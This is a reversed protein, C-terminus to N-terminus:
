VEYVWGGVLFNDVINDEGFIRLKDFGNIDINNM